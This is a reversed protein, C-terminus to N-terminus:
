RRAFLREIRWHAERLKRSWPDLARDSEDGPLFPALRPLTVWLSMAHIEALEAPEAPGDLERLGAPVGAYARTRSPVACNLERVEAAAIASAPRSGEPLAYIIRFRSPDRVDEEFRAFSVIGFRWATRFKRSRAPYPDAALAAQEIAPLEDDLEALVWVFEGQRPSWGLAAAAREAPSPASRPQEAPSRM